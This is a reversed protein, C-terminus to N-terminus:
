LREQYNVIFGALQEQENVCLDGGNYIWNNDADFLISGLFDPQAEYATYLHYTKVAYYEEMAPVINIIEDAGNHRKLWARAERELAINKTTM